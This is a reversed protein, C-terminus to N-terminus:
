LRQVGYVQAVTLATSLRDYASFTHLRNVTVRLSVPIQVTNTSADALQQVGSHRM